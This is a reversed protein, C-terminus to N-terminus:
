INIIWRFVILLGVFNVKQKRLIASPPLVQSHGKIVPKTIFFPLFDELVVNKLKALLHIDDTLEDMETSLVIEQQESSVKSRQRRFLKAFPSNEM